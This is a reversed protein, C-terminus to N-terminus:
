LGESLFLVPPRCHIVRWPEVVVLLLEMINVIFAFITFLLSNEVNKSLAASQGTKKKTKQGSNKAGNGMGSPAPLHAVAMLQHNIYSVVAKNDSRVLM